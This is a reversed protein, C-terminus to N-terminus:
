FARFSVVLMKLELYKWPTIDGSWRKFHSPCFPPSPSTFQIHCTPLLHAHQGTWWISPSKTPRQRTRRQVQRQPLTALTHNQMLTQSQSMGPWQSAEPGHSWHAVMQDNGMKCFCIRRNSLQILLTSIVTVITVFVTANSLSLLYHPHFRFPRTFYTNRRQWSLFGHRWSTGTLRFHRRMRSPQHSVTGHVHLKRSTVM